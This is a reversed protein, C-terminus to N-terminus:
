KGINNTSALRSEDLCLKRSIEYELIHLVNGSSTVGNSGSKQSSQVYAGMLQSRLISFIYQVFTDLPGCDDCVSACACAHRDNRSRTSFARCNPQRRSVELETTLKATMMM